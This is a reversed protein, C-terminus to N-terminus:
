AQFGGILEQVSSIGEERLFQEFEELIRIPLDYRRFAATGVAVATAGALMFEVVDEGSEIGGTGVIPVKVSRSVEWVLRLALPKIAPGSLGGQSLGLRSRRTRPNIAMGLFTNVLALGDVGEGEARQAVSIIDPANPTLKVILTRRFLPRVKRVLEATLVPDSGFSLGKKVNPCSINLEIGDVRVEENLRSAMLTYEELNEGALSAILPLDLSALERIGEELFAEFGRNELGITNLIGGATEAIRPPPNGKRPKLTISKTVFAGLKELPLLEKAEKGWGWAGSALTIPNKLTLKGLKVELKM